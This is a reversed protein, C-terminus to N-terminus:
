TLLLFSVIVKENSAKHAVSWRRDSVLDLVFFWLVFVDYEYHQLNPVFNTIVEVFSLAQEMWGDNNNNTSTRHQLM